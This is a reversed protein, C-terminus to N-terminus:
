GGAARDDGDGGAGAPAAGTAEQLLKELRREYRSLEDMLERHLRRGEEFRDIAEELSLEDRELREVLGSLTDLREKFSRTKPPNEMPAPPDYCHGRVTVVM